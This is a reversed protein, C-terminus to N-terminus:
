RKSGRAREAMRALGRSARDMVVDTSALLHSRLRGAAVDAEGGLLAEVVGLHEAITLQMRDPTLFDHMRVARIRENVKELQTVLTANGASAALRVHFSEDTLVFAPDPGPCDRALARWEDRLPELAAPEHARGMRAPRRVADFELAARVEYLESVEVLNPVAPCYGGDPLREVLGEAALRVLAERVPTRSIELAEALREEALRGGLPLEGALLRGKLDDYAQNRRLVPLGTYPNTGM